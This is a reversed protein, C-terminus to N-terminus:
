GGQYMDPDAAEVQAEETAFQVIHLLRSVSVPNIFM